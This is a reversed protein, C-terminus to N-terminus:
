IKRRKIIPFQLTINATNKMGTKIMRVSKAILINVSISMDVIITGCNNVIIDSVFRSLNNISCFPPKIDM